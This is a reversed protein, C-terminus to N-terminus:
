AIPPRLPDTLSISPPESLRLDNRLFRVFHTLAPSCAPMLVTAASCACHGGACCPEDSDEPVDGGAAQSDHGACHESTPPAAQGPDAHAFAMPASGLNLLAAIVVLFNRLKGRRMTAALLAQGDM